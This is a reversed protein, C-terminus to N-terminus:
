PFSNIEQKGSLLYHSSLCHPPYSSPRTTSVYSCKHLWMVDCPYSFTPTCFLMIMWIIKLFVVKMSHTIIYKISANPFIFQPRSKNVKYSFCTWTFEPFRHESLNLFFLNLNTLNLESFYPTELNLKGSSYTRHLKHLTM